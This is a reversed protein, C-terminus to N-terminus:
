ILYRFLQIKAAIADRYTRIDPHEPINQINPRGDCLEYILYSLANLKPDSTYIYHICTHSPRGARGLTLVTHGRDPYQCCQRWWSLMISLSPSILPRAPVPTHQRQDPASASAPPPSSVDATTATLSRVGALMTEGEGTHGTDGDGCGCCGPSLHGCQLWSGAQVLSVGPRMQPSLIDFLKM